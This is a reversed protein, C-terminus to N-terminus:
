SIMSQQLLALEEPLTETEIITGIANLQYTVGIEHIM